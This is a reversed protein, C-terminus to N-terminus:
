VRVLRLSGSREGAPWGIVRLLLLTADDAAEVGGRHAQYAREVRSLIGRADEATAGDGAALIAGLRDDGFPAGAANEADTLGDTYLFLRDGEELPIRREEYRGGAMLGVPRGTSDLRTTRGDGAVRYPSEHGANVYRLARRIPDVICLFLTAYVESPTSAEIDHDLCTVFEALDGEVPVRARLTAQLNAMLLAAPLGKGSVDGMILALSGDPLGFYNFFDGGLERAPISLGEVEAFACRHPAKPLLEAQIRRCLELEKRLREQEVLRQQSGQLERAMRNFSAALVGLEDRSRVPVQTELHGAALREAGATLDALNQTMRRSLPLIGFMALSALALGAGLNRASARRIEGLSEGVPRAIGFTLGTSPDARTVVVWNEDPSLDIPGVQAKGEPPAPTPDPEQDAPRRDAALVPRDEAAEAAGDGAPTGATEKRREHAARAIEKLKPLDAKKMTFLDGDTDVAFPIEGVEGHTQSLVEKLLRETRVKAKLKGFPQGNSNLTCAFEKKLSAHVPEDPWMGGEEDSAPEDAPEADAATGAADRVADAHREAEELRQEVVRAIERVQEAFDKGPDAGSESKLLVAAKELLPALSPDKVLDAAMGTLHFMISRQVAPTGPPPVPPAPPAAGPARADDPPEAPDHPTAEAPLFEFAEFYGVTEGLAGILHGLFAPDPQGGKAGHRAATAPLPIEQLRDFRWSLGATVAAMRNEMEAAARASETEVARRLALTSSRYSYLTIAGLPLVALILFAVILQTRLKM